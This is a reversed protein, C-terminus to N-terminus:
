VCEWSDPLASVMIMSWQRVQLPVPSTVFSCNLIQWASLDWAVFRYKWRGMSSSAPSSFSGWFCSAQLPTGSFTSHGTQSPAPSIAKSSSSQSRFITASSSSCSSSHSGARMAGNQIEGPHIFRNLSMEEMLNKGLQLNWTKKLYCVTSQIYILFSVLSTTLNRKVYTMDM